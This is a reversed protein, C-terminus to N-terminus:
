GGSTERTASRKTEEKVQASGDMVEGERGGQGGREEGDTGTEGDRETM